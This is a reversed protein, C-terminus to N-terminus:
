NLFDYRPYRGRQLFHSSHEQLRDDFQHRRRHMDRMWAINPQNLDLM